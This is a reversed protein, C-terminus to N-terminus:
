RDDGPYMPIEDMVIQRLRAPFRTRPHQKYTTPHATSLAVVDALLSVWTRAFEGRRYLPWGNRQLAVPPDTPPRPPSVARKKPSVSTSPSPYSKGDRLFGDILTDVLV